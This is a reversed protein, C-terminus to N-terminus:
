GSRARGRWPGVQDQGEGRAPSGNWEGQCHQGLCFGGQTGAVSERGGAMSKRIPGRNRISGLVYIM